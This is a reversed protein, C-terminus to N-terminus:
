LEVYYRVKNTGDSIAQKRMYRKCALKASRRARFKFLFDRYEAFSTYPFVRDGFRNIKCEGEQLLVYVDVEWRRNVAHRHLEVRFPTKKEIDARTTM